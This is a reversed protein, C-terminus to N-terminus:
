NEGETYQKDALTEINRALILLSLLLNNFKLRNEPTLSEFSDYAITNLLSHTRIIEQVIKYPNIM